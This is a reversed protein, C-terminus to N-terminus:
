ILEIHFCGNEYKLLYSDAKFYNAEKKLNEKSKPSLYAAGKARSAKVQIVAIVKGGKNVVHYDSHIHKAKSIPVTWGSQVIRRENKVTEFSKELYTMAEKEAILELLSSTPEIRAKEQPGGWKYVIARERLDQPMRKNEPM